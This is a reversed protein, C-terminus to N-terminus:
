RVVVESEQLKGVADSVQCLWWMHIRPDETLEPHFSTGFVNGQKVAVIDGAEQPMGKAEAKGPLKGLVEDKNAMAERALAN